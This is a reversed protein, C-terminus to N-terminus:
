GVTEKPDDGYSDKIRIRGDRRKVILESKLGWEQWAARCLRRADAIALFQFLYRAKLIGDCVVAWGLRGSPLVEWRLRSM